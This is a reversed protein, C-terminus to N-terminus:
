LSIESYVRDVHYTNCRVATPLFRTKNNNKKKKTKTGNPDSRGSTATIDDAASSRRPFKHTADLENRM